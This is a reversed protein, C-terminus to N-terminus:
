GVHRIARAEQHHVRGGSYYPVIEGNLEYVVGGYRLRDTDELPLLTGAASILKLADDWNERDGVEEGPADSLPQVNIGALETEMAAGWDRVSNGYRDVVLPARLRTVSQQYFISM